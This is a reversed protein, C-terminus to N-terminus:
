KIYRSLGTSTSIKRTNDIILAEVGDIKEILEMSLYHQNHYIVDCYDLHPRVYMKYTLELVSASVKNALFKMLATGKKAKAIAEKIHEAFALCEDLILGLHKTSSKRAVPINNFNM